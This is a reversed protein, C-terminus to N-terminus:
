KLLEQLQIQFIEEDTRGQLRLEAELDQLPSVEVGYAQKMLSGFLAPKWNIFCEDVDILSEVVWNNSADRTWTKMM